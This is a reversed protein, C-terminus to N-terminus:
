EGKAKRVIWGGVVVVGIVCLRILGRSSRASSTTTRSSGDNYGQASVTGASGLLLASALCVTKITKRM